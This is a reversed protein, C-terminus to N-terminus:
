REYVKQYSTYPRSEISGSLKFGLDEPFVKPVKNRRKNRVDTCNSTQRKIIFITDIKHSDDLFFMPFGLCM